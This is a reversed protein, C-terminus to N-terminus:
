QKDKRWVAITAAQGLISVTAQRQSRWGVAHAAANLKGPDGVLLVARGGPKLVRDYERLM